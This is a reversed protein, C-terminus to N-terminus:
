FIEVLRINRGLKVMMQSSISIYIYILSFKYSITAVKIMNEIWTSGENMNVMAVIFSRDWTKLSQRKQTLLYRAIVM